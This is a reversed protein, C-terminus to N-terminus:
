TKKITEYTSTRIVRLLPRPVRNNWLIHSRVEAFIVPNDEIPFKSLTQHLKLMKVLHVPVTQMVQHSSQLDPSQDCYEM